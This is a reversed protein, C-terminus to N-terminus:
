QKHKPTWRSHLFSLRLILETCNREIITHFLSVWKKLKEYKIVFYDGCCGDAWVRVDGDQDFGASIDPLICVATMLNILARTASMFQSRRGPIQVFPTLHTENKMQHVDSIGTVLAFTVAINVVLQHLITVMLLSPLVLSFEMAFRGPIHAISTVSLLQVMHFITFYSPVNHLSVNLALNGNNYQMANEHLAKYELPDM